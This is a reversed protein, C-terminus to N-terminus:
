NGEISNTHERTIPCVYHRSHNISLHLWGDGRLFRYGRWGDSNIRTRRTSFKWVFGRITATSRDPVRKVVESLRVFLLKKKSSRWVLCFFFYFCFFLIRMEKHQITFHWGKSKNRNRKEFFLVFCVSFVFFRTGFCFIFVSPNTKNNVARGNREVIGLVWIPCSYRGRFHKYLRGFNSEDIEQIGSLKLSKLIQWTKGRSM